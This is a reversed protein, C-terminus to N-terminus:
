PFRLKDVFRDVCRSLDFQSEFLARARAGMEAHQDLSAAEFTRILAALEVPREPLCVLGCGAGRVLEAAQGSASVLVPRGACLYAQLKSPVTRSLDPDDLLLLLTAKAANFLAPMWQPEVEGLFSVNGLGLEKAKARLSGAEGGSGAVYFHIKSDKPLLQAAALLTEVGQARGLTGAFVVACQHQMRHVHQLVSDPLEMPMPIDRILNPAYDIEKKSGARQAVPERFAESQILIRDTCSYVWTVARGVLALLLPHKVVGTASLVEPWLDQVWLVVPIGRLKALFIAPIAQFIPSPAFVLIVDPRSKRYLWPAAICGSVIFSAYNMILSAASAGRPWLAVRQISVNNWRERRFSFRRYGPFIEGHPFNPQGTMVSVEHGRHNIASVLENILFREPWFYQSVV